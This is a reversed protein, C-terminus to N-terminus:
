FGRRYKESIPDSVTIGDFKRFDRDRSWIREVGHQHMLAVLHADPVLNGRPAVGGTVRRYSDWFNELEGAVRVHPRALLSEVNAAAEAHSLPSAFISPHTAVRLYGLVAPWLLLVLSPGAALYAVLAAAREHEPADVNSAYVLINTDVTVSM